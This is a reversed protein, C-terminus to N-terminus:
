CKLCFPDPTNPAFRSKRVDVRTAHFNKSALKLSTNYSAPTFHTFAWGWFNQNSSFGPFIGWFGPFIQIFKLLIYSFRRLIANHTTIKCFHRRFDFHLREKKKSTMNKCNKKPCTLPFKPLFPAQFAKIQFFAGLISHFATSKKTKNEKSNKKPFKPLMRREGLFKGAGVDINLAIPKWAKFQNCFTPVPLADNAALTTYYTPANLAQNASIHCKVLGKKGLRLAPVLGPLCYFTFCDV